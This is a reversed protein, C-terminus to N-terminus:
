HRPPRAAHGEIPARLRQLSAASCRGIPTPPVAAARHSSASNGEAVKLTGTQVCVREFYLEPGDVTLCVWGCGGLALPSCPTRQGIRKATTNCAANQGSLLTIEISPHNRYFVCVLPQREKKEQKNTKGRPPPLSLFWVFVLRFGSSIDSKPVQSFKTRHM